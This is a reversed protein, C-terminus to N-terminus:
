AKNNNIHSIQQGEPTDMIQWGMRQMEDRWRDSAEWDKQNRAQQRLKVLNAIEDPIATKKPELDTRQVMDWAWPEVTDKVNASLTCRGMVNMDFQSGASYVQEDQSPPIIHVSGQGMVNFTGSALNIALSTHEDIGIITVSPSLLARLKAFRSEGMFCHSTDLEAGGDTNNWHPVFALSLGFPKLMDLGAFWFPDQGVKYIEYVPISCCGAAIAAASALTLSAGTMVRALILQWALSGQLQQVTYTPSGAGMYIMDSDAIPQVIELEDPSFPTGRKRAAIQTIKPNYNRLRQQLYEVVRGAVRESNLEFGAPTELVAIKVPQAYQRALWEYVRGGQYATEGSGMLVLFGPSSQM